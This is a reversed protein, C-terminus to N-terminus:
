RLTARSLVKCPASARLLISVFVESRSYSAIWPNVYDREEEEEKEANGATDRPNVM